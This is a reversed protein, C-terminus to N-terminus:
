PGRSIVVPMGNPESIAQEIVAMDLDVPRRFLEADVAAMVGEQLAARGAEDEELPPHVELYLEGGYWGVKFPQNIIRVPTGIPAMDFLEEVDEPLMRICGHSVRM